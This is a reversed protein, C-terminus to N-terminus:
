FLSWLWVALIFVVGACPEKRVQFNSGTAEPTNEDM